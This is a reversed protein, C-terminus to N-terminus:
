FHSKGHGKEEDGEHKDIAREVPHSNRACLQLGGKIVLSAGRVVLPRKKIIM